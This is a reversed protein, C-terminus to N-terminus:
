CPDGFVDKGLCKPKKIRRTPVQRFTAIPQQSKKLAQGAQAAARTATSAARKSQTAASGVRDSLKDLKEVSETTQNMLLPLRQEIIATLNGIHKDRDALSRNKEERLKELNAREIKLDNRANAIEEAHQKSLQWLDYIHYGIAAGGFILGGSLVLALVFLGAKVDDSLQDFKM